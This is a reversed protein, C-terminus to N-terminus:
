RRATCLGQRRPQQERVGDAVVKRPVDDVREGPSDVVVLSFESTGLGWRLALPLPGQIAVVSFQIPTRRAELASTRLLAVADASEGVSAGASEGGADAATGGRCAPLHDYRYRGAATAGEFGETALAVGLARM